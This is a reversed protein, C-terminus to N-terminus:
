RRTLSPELPWPCATPPALPDDLALDRAASGAARSALLARLLDARSKATVRVPERDLARSLRVSLLSM